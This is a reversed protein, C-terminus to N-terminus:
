AGRLRGLLRMPGPRLWRARITPAVRGAFSAKFDAVSPANAGCWDITTVGAAALTSLVHAVLVTMAPGPRSGVIWYWARAGDIAVTAVAETDGGGAPTAAFVRALGADVLAEALAHEAGHPIILPRGHRSMAGRSFAAAREVFQVGEEV